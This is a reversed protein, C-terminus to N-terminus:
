KRPAAGSIVIPKSPESIRGTDDIWTLVVREGAKPEVASPIIQECTFPTHWVQVERAGASIMAWALPETKDGAVRSVVM